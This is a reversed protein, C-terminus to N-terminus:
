IAVFCRGVLRPVVTSVDSEAALDVDDSFGREILEKGSGSQRLAGCLGARFHEFCAAALQAEPSRTGPLNAIVAGAGILDELCPRLEGTSWTEGALIVAFSSGLRAAARAVAAANRLCAALVSAHHTHFSLAAGNPSPLVLRYGAPLSRLSAPSLSFGAKRDASALHADMAAAYDAASAEELPYPFVIAGRAAAVDLATSFSLVDVLIVADSVPALETLGRLGWECRVQFEAQHFTVTGPYPKGAADALRPNGAPLTM